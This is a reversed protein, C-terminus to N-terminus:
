KYISPIVLHRQWEAEVEQISSLTKTDSALRYLKDTAVFREFVGFLERAIMRKAKDTMAALFASEAIPFLDDAESEPDALRTAWVGVARLAVEVREDQLGAKVIELDNCVGAVILKARDGRIDSGWAPLRATVNDLNSCANTRGSGRMPQVYKPAVEELAIASPTGTSAVLREVENRGKKFFLEEHTVALGNGPSALALVM